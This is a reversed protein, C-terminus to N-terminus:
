WGGFKLFSEITEGTFHACGSVQLRGDPDHRYDGGLASKEGLITWLIELNRERVRSLLPGKRILLCSKGGQGVSADFCVVDGAENYLCREDPGLKLGLLEKVYRSPRLININDSSGDYEDSWHFSEATIFGNGVVKGSENGDHNQFICNQRKDVSQFYAPAWYQERSFIGYPTSSEPMWRGMFDQEKMWALIAPKHEKRVLYSRFQCWIEKHRIDFRDAEPVNLPEQWDPYAELVIWKEGQGDMVELATDPNPWDDTQRVWEQFDSGWDEYSSPFWWTSQVEKGGPHSQQLLSTPDIDRCYIQHPGDYHAKDESHDRRYEFNDAVRALIEHYAIWQYKKGMREARKKRDHSLGQQCNRDFKNFREATWGLEFVRKTILKQLDHTSCQSDHRGYKSTSPTSYAAIHPELKLFNSRQEPSLKELLEDRFQGSAKQLEEKLNFGTRQEFREVQSGVSDVARIMRVHKMLHKRVKPFLTTKLRQFEERGGLPRATFHRASNKVLKVGFDGSMVSHYIARQGWEENKYDKTDPAYQEIEEDSPVKPWASSYPPRCKEIDGQFPLRKAVAYEVVGRAYDRTLLQVPPQGDGFVLDYVRQVVPTIAEPQQHRVVCGYAVAYVREVVYPDDTEHFRNIWDTLVTPRDTLLCVLAKTSCDRLVRHQSTLFWGLVTAIHLVAEDSVFSNNEGSWAWDVLRRVASAEQGDTPYQGNLYITWIEDRDPMALNSLHGHLTDANLPHNLKPCLEVLLEYVANHNWPFVVKNLYDLTKDSVSSARRWRLSDLFAWRVSSNSNLNPLAEWIEYNYREPLQVALAELLGRLLPLLREDAFMQRLPKGEEFAALPQSAEVHATLLAEAWVHDGFREYSFRIVETRQRYDWEKALLGEGLLERLLGAKTRNVKALEAELLEDAEGLTLESRQQVAMWQALRHLAIRVLNREELYDLRSPSALQKNIGQVVFSLVQMLGEYGEPVYDYGSCRLGECYLKLFLPNSFEPDFLPASPQRIGYHKFFHRVALYTTESFGRHTLEIWGNSNEPLIADRYSARVSLVLGVWPYPRFSEIFGALYDKWFRRGVGENLADIFVVARTQLAQARANLAGLFVDRDPVGVKQLIQMWPDHETRFEQGLFLLSDQGRETRKVAVDALLHSKGSGAEGSVVLVPQNALEVVQSYLFLEFRHVERQLENFEYEEYSRTRHYPDYGPSSTKEKKAELELRTLENCLTDLKEYLTRTYKTMQECPLPSTGRWQASDVSSQWQCFAVKAANVFPELPTGKWARDMLKTFRKVVPYRVETLQEAFRDDRALGDFVRAVPLAFNLETTYRSGLDALSRDLWRKLQLTSLDVEGFWFAKKGEQELRSLRTTLEHNGWFDIEFQRGLAEAHAQWKAVFEDWKDKAFQRRKGRGDVIRPDALDLPLAVIYKVLNPHTLIARGISEDLDAWQSAGLQNFFKAQWAYETGDVLVWYAEVGADPTGKRIFKDATEPVESEALQCVLEEFAFNRSEFFDSQLRDWM